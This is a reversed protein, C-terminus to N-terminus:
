VPEQRVIEILLVWASQAGAAFSFVCGPVLWYMAGHWGFLFSLGAILFPLLAFQFLVVRLVFYGMPVQLGVSYSQSHGYTIKVWSLAGMLLIELGLAKELQNPALAVISILLTSLLIILAESARITLGPIELIKSLNISISVFILGTLAAAAGAVAVLFNSWDVVPNV